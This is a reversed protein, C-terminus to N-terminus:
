LKKYEEHSIKEIHYFTDSISYLRIGFRDYLFESLHKSLEISDPLRTEWRGTTSNNVRTGYEYNGDVGGVFGNTVVVSGGLQIALPFGLEFMIHLKNIVMNEGAGLNTDNFTLTDIGEPISSLCDLRPKVVDPLNKTFFHIDAHCINKDRITRGNIYYNFLVIPLHDNYVYRCYHDDNVLHFDCIMDFDKISQKICVLITDDDISQKIVNIHDKYNPGTAVIVIKKSKYYDKLYDLKARNGEIKNLKQRLIKTRKIIIKKYEDM